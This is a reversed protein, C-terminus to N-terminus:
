KSDNGHASEVAIPLCSFYIIIRSDDSTTTMKSTPQHDFSDLTAAIFDHFCVVLWWICDVRHSGDM